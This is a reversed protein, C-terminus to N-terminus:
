LVIDGNTAVFSTFHLDRGRSVGIFLADFMHVCNEGNEVATELM